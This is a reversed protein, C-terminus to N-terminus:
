FGIGNRIESDDQKTQNQDLVESDEEVVVVLDGLPLLLPFFIVLLEPLEVLLNPPIVVEHALEVLQLLM